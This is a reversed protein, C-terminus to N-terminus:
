ALFSSLNVRVGADQSDEPQSFCGGMSAAAEDRTESMPEATTTPLDKRIEVLIHHSGEALFLVLVDTKAFLAEFTESVVPWQFFKQFVRGIFSDPKKLRATIDNALRAIDLVVLELSENPEM